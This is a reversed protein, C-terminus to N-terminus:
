GVYNLETMNILSLTDSNNIISCNPSPWQKTNKYFINRIYNKMITDM